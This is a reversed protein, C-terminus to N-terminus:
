IIGDQAGSFYTLINDFLFKNGSIISRAEMHRYHWVSWLM